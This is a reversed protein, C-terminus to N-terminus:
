ATREEGIHFEAPHDAAPSINIVYFVANRGKGRRTKRMLKQVEGYPILLCKRRREEIQTDMTTGDMLTLVRTTGLQLSAQEDDLWPLGLVLNNAVRLARLVYFTRQFEPRALEFTIDCVISSTV